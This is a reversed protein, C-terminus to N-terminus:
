YPRVWKRLNALDSERQVQYLETLYREPFEGVGGCFDCGEGECEACYWKGLYPFAFRKAWETFTMPKHNRHPALPGNAYEGISEHCPKDHDCYVCRGNAGQEYSDCAGLDPSHACQCKDCM